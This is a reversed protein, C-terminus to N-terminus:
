RVVANTTPPTPAQCRSRPWQSAGLRLINEIAIHIAAITAGNCATAPSAWPRFVSAAVLRRLDGRHLSMELGRLM